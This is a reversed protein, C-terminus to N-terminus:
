QGLISYAKLLPASSAKMLGADPHSMEMVLFIAGSVSLACLLLVSVVTLNRPTLLSFCAFLLTLWSVLVVLLPMPLSVQAQEILQWRGQALESSIVLAQDRLRKQSDTQPSLKDIRGRFAEMGAQTDKPEAGTLAINAEPWGHHIVGALSCRVAQRIEGTEPGYECLVRDMAVVKAANLTLGNNVADYSTKASSVLLGLVLATLTAIFGTGMKVVDKSDDRLHHEPLKNRLTSGAMIGVFICAFAILAVFIPAM